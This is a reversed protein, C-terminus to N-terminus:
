KMEWRLNIQCASSTTFDSSHGVRSQRSDSGNTLHVRRNCRAYSWTSDDHYIEREKNKCINVILKVKWKLEEDKQGKREEIGGVSCVNNWKQLTWRLADFGQLIQIIRFNFQADIFSRVQPSTHTYKPKFISKFNIWTLNSKVNWSTLLLKVLLDKSFLQILWKSSSFIM